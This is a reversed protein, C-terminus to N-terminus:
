QRVRIRLLLLSTKTEIALSPFTVVLGIQEATHTDRLELRIEFIFQTNLKIWASTWASQVRGSHTMM